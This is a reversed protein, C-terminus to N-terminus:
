EIGVLVLVVKFDPTLILMEKLSLLKLSWLAQSKVINSYEKKERVPGLPNCARHLEASFFIQKEQFSIFYNM